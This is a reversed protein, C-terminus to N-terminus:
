NGLSNRTVTESGATRFHETFFNKKFIECFECSLVQTLLKKSNNFYLLIDIIRIGM